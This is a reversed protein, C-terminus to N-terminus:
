SGSKNVIWWKKGDSHFTRTAYTNKIAIERSFDILEGETGIKLVYGTKLKYKSEENCIKKIILVRDRNESAKPLMAKIHHDTTDFLVTHDSDKFDYEQEKVVTISKYVAGNISLDGNSELHRVYQGDLAAIKGRLQLTNTSPEYILNASGEFEKAGKLQVSYKPGNPHPSKFKLYGDFFNKASTHRIENRSSDHVLLLDDDGINQGKDAIDMSTPVSIQLKGNKFNLGSNPANAITVGAKSIKIGDSAQVKLKERHAELGNGYDISRASVLGQLNRAPINYLGDASGTLSKAAVHDTRLTKGDFCLNYHARATKDGEYTLLGHNTKGTLTDIAVKNETACASQADTDYFVSASIVNKFIKVGEIEQDGHQDVSGSVTGKHLNYAMDKRAVIFLAKNGELVSFLVGGKRPTGLTYSDVEM